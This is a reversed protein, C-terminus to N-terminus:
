PCTFTSSSTMGASLLTSYIHAAHMCLCWGQLVTVVTFSRHAMETNHICNVAPQACDAAAEFCNTCRIDVRANTGSATKSSFATNALVANWDVSMLPGKSDVHQLSWWSDDWIYNAHIYIAAFVAATILSTYGLHFRYAVPDFAWSWGKAAELIHLLPLTYLVSSRCWPLGKGGLASVTVAANLALLSNRIIVATFHSTCTSRTSFSQLSGDSCHLNSLGLCSM